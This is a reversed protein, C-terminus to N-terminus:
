YRRDDHRQQQYYPSYPRRQHGFDGNDGDRRSRPSMSHGRFYFQDDNREYGMYRDDFRGNEKYDYDRRGSDRRRYDNNEGKRYTKGYGQKRGEYGNDRYIPSHTQSVDKERSDYTVMPIDYTDYLSERLNKALLKTGEKTLHLGDEKLIGQQAMGRYFLNSNDCIHVTKRGTLNEKLLINIKEIKRNLTPDDRPLALSVIIRSDKHKSEIADIIDSLEKTCEDASKKPIDNCLSQLIYADQHDSSELAEFYNKTEELTYKIKKSMNFDTGAIYNLSLYKANSTGVIQVKRINARKPSEERPLKPENNKNVTEDSRHNTAKVVENYQKEVASSERMTAAQSNDKEETKDQDNTEKTTNQQQNGIRCNHLKLSLVEDQLDSIRKTMESTKEELTEILNNKTDIRKQLSTVEHEQMSLQKNVIEIKHQLLSTDAKMKCEQIEKQLTVAHVQSQTIEKEKEFAKTLKDVRHSFEDCSQCTKKSQNDQPKEQSIISRLRENEKLLENIKKNLHNEEDINTRLNRVSENIKDFAGVFSDQLSSITSKNFEQLDVLQFHRDTQSSLHYDIDTQCEAPKVDITKILIDSNRFAESRSTNETGTHILSETPDQNDETKLDTSNFSIQSAKFNESFEADIDVCFRCTFKRQTCEYLYLQYEPLDTCNYHMWYKCEQCQMADEEDCCQSKCSKCIYQPKFVVKEEEGKSAFPVEPACNTTDCQQEEYWRLATAQWFTTEVSIGSRALDDAKKNGESDKHGEVWRWDVSLQDQLFDLILWLDKNLVDRDGKRKTTKWDNQKWEKIWETIGNKVYKSDTTVAIWTIKCTIAQTIAVIAASLEGRNNTQKEGLLTEAWNLPHFNGWYVGCGAQPNNHGNNRCAGDVYIEVPEM